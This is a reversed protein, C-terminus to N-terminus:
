PPPQGGFDITVMADLQKRSKIAMTAGANIDFDTVIAYHTYVPFGTRTTVTVGSGGKICSKTTFDYIFTNACIDCTVADTCNDCNNM